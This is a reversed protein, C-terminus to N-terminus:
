KKAEEPMPTEPRVLAGVDNLMKKLEGNKYLDTVIDCGGVFEGGIFLQPFTPWDSSTFFLFFTYSYVKLNNRVSPSTLINASAFDCGLFWIPCRFNGLHKLINVVRLSFGCVPATPTGKM